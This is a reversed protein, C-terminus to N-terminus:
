WKILAEYSSNIAEAQQRKESDYVGRMHCHPCEFLGNDQDCNLQVLLEDTDWCHSCYYLGKKDDNRTIYAGEHRVIKKSINQRKKLETNEERLKAVEDLLDLVQASLDLLRRYLEINDAKQALSAADKVVDYLSM